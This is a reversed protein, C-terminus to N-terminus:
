RPPEKMKAVVEAARTITPLIRGFLALADVLIQPLQRLAALQGLAERDLGFATAASELIAATRDEAPVEKGAFSLLAALELALPRAAEALARAQEGPNEAIALFRRRLRLGLNRLEQEIRLRVHERPVELAIFPDEGALVVHHKKIDLFKTPFAAAVSGIEEPTLLLPEVRLARWASILTPAVARLTDVSVDRLLVVINIDSRAPNYRGRALGGYLIIGLLNIGGAEKLDDRLKGLAAAVRNPIGLKELDDTM